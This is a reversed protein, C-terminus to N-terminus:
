ISLPAEKIRKEIEKITKEIDSRANYKDYLSRELNSKITDLTNITIKITHENSLGKEALDLLRHYDKTSLTVTGEINLNKM